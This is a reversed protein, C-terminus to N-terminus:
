IRHIQVKSLRSLILKFSITRKQIRPPSALMLAQYQKLLEETITEWSFRGEIRQIARTKLNQRLEEDELLLIISEALSDPNGPQCLLGTEGSTILEPLGGVESAVVPVGSAMAECVPLGFAESLSPSILLDANRYVDPMQTYPIHGCLSVNQMESASLKKLLQQYYFDPRAPPLNYFQALEQVRKDDSIAVHFQPPASGIPGVIQLRADPFKKLVIRFADLLVHIGKEPSIRGVFLLTPGDKKQLESDEQPAFQSLDTGNYITKCRASFEPFHERIKRTIADSCGIILDAEQLCRRVMAADLEPLCEWHLHIV